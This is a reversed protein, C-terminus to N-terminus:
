IIIINKHALKAQTDPLDKFIHTIKQGTKYDGSFGQAEISGQQAVVCFNCGWKEAANRTHTVAKVLRFDAGLQLLYFFPKERTAKM